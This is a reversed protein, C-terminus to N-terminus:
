WALQKSFKAKPREIPAKVLMRKLLSAEEETISPAFNHNRAEKLVQKRDKLASLIEAFILAM